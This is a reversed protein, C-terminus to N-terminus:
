LTDEKGERWDNQGARKEGCKYNDAANEFTKSAFAFENSLRDCMDAMVRLFNSAFNNLAKAIEPLSINFLQAQLRAKRRRDEELPPNYGHKKKYKKKWQRYNM